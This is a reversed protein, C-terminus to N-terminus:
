YKQSPNYIPMIQLDTPLEFKILTRSPIDGKVYILLGGKRSNVDLRYPQKFGKMTFLNSPFSDDIKTEAVVLFDIKNQLILQLDEFKNRISNINLYGIIPNKSNKSKLNLFNNVDYTGRCCYPETTEM